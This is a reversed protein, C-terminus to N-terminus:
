NKWSLCQWIQNRFTDFNNPFYIKTDRSIFSQFAMKLKFISFHIHTLMSMINTLDWFKGLDMM